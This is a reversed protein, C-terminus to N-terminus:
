LASPLLHMLPPGLPEAGALRPGPAPSHICMANTAHPGPAAHVQPTAQEALEEAPCAHFAGALTSHLCTQASRLPCSRPLRSTPRPHVQHHAAGTGLAVLHVDEDAEWPEALM